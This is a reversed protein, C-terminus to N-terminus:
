YAGTEMEHEYMEILHRIVDDYEGYEDIEAGCQVCLVWRYSDRVEAAGSAWVFLRVMYIADM